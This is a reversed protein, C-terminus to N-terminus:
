RQQLADVVHGAAVLTRELHTRTAEDDELLLLNVADGGGAAYCSRRASVDRTVRLNPIFLIRIM